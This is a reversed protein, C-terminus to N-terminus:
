SIENVEHETAFKTRIPNATKSFYARNHENGFYSFARQAGGGLPPCDDHRARSLLEVNYLFGKDTILANPGTIESLIKSHFISNIPLQGRAGESLASGSPSNLRTIGQYRRGFKTRIPCTTKSFSVNTHITLSRVGPGM